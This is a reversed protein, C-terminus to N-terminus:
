APLTQSPKIPNRTVLEKRMEFTLHAIFNCLACNFTAVDDFHLIATEIKTFRFILCHPAPQM